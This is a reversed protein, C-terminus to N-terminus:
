FYYRINGGLSVFYNRDFEGKVRVGQNTQDIKGKGLWVYSLGISYDVKGEERLKGYSIGFKVQEDVALDFTRDADDVPSSDYAIGATIIEGDMKKMMGTGVHWTDDWKRDIATTISTVAADISFNNNSFKSWEEYDFDMIWTMSDTLDYAMGVAYVPAYDFEVEVNNPSGTISNILTTGQFELDGELTVNSKTRYVFGLMAKDTVQWTLSLIGQYGWGNLKDLSVKGDAAGPILAKRNIAVDLDMVTYIATVGIGVSVADSIKYGISPTLGLGSLVARTAAYRGVFTDGYDVGGGLPATVAFGLRFKDSLVNVLNFGPIVGPFSSNEGDEGGDGAISSEFEVVPYIIQLGPMLTDKDIGTMGAPNTYAADATINNVVNNVGATGLSLPSSLNSLYLGGAFGQHSFMWSITILFVCLLWVVYRQKM